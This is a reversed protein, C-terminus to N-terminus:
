ALQLGLWVRREFRRDECVEQKLHICEVALQAGCGIQREARTRFAVALEFFAFCLLRAVEPQHAPDGGQARVQTQVRGGEAVRNTQRRANGHAIRNAAAKVHVPRVPNRHGDGDHQFWVESGGEAPAYQAQHPSKRPQQDGRQQEM